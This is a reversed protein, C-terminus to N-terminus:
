CGRRKKNENAAASLILSITVVYKREVTLQNWLKLFQVDQDALPERTEKKMDM